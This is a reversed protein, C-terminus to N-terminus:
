PEIDVNIHMGVYTRELALLDNRVVPPLVAPRLVRLHFANLVAQGAVVARRSHLTALLPDLSEQERPGYVVRLTDLKPLVGALQFVARVNALVGTFHTTFEFDTVSPVARLFAELEAATIAPPMRFSLRRLTCGSRTLLAALDQTLPAMGDSFGPGWLDLRTLSPVTVFPLISSGNNALHRLSPLTCPAIAGPPRMMVLSFRLTELNTCPQLASIGPEGDHATMDLTTLQNWATDVSLLPFDRLIVTRLLPANLIPITTDQSIVNTNLSLSLKRLMPFPGPQAVLAAFSLVPLSLHLEQWRQSLALSQGMLNVGRQIDRTELQIKVPLVGARTAWLGLVQPPVTPTSDDVRISQWLEPTHHSIDRWQQSVAALSLPPEALRPLPFRGKVAISDVVSDRMIQQIMEVPLALIPVTAM